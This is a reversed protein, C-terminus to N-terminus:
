FPPNEPKKYNEERARRVLWHRIRMEVAKESESMFHSAMGSTEQGRPRPVLVPAIGSVAPRVAAIFDAAPKSLAPNKADRPKM